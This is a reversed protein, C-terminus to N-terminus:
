VRSLSHCGELLGVEWPMDVSRAESPAEPKQGSWETRGSTLHQHQKHIHASSNVSKGRHSSCM